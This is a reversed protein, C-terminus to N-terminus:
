WGGCDTHIITFCAASDKQWEISNFDDRQGVMVNFSDGNDLYNCAEPYELRVIKIQKNINAISRGISKIAKESENNM